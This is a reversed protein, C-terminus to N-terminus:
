RDNVTGTGGADHSEAEEVLERSRALARDIASQKPSTPIIRIGNRNFQQTKKM